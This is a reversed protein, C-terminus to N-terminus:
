EFDWKLSLRIWLDRDEMYSMTEDFLGVEDFCSKRLLVTSTHIPSGILLQYLLNGSLKDANPGTSIIRNTSKDLVLRNSYVGCINQPCKDLLEIQKKLKDPVWEDDDDLFALYKGKSASIGTNRAASPGKNANERIYEIRRDEFRKVVDVTNDTSNDDVVIIELDKFTQKLASEIAHHLFEARNHTPLIVSVKPM